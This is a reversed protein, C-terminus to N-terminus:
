VDDNLSGAFASNVIIVYFSSLNTVLSPVALKLYLSTLLCNSIPIIDSADDTKATIIRNM